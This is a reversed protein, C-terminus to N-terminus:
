CRCGRGGRGRSLESAADDPTSLVEVAEATDDVVVEEEVEAEVLESAADDPTSLM